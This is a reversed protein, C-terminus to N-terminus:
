ENALRARIMLAQEANADTVTAFRVRMDRWAFGINNVFEEGDDFTLRRGDKGIIGKRLEGILWNSSSERPVIIRGDVCYFTGMEHITFDGDVVSLNVIRVSERRAPHNTSATGRSIRRADHRVVEGRRIASNIASRLGQVIKGDRRLRAFHLGLNERAWEAAARIADERDTPEGDLNTILAYRWDETTFAQAHVKVARVCGRRPRDLLGAKVASEVADLLEAYLRGDTRLRQYAVLGRERLHEAVKRVAADKELPGHPWLAMFVAYHLQKKDLDALATTATSTSARPGKELGAYDARGRATEEEENRGIPIADAKARKRGRANSQSDFHRKRTPEHPAM